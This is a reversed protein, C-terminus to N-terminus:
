LAATAVCIAQIGLGQGFATLGEGSTATVGVSAAPLKAVRAINARMAELQPAIHPRACEISFSLHSLRWGGLHKMAEEVYAESDAIGDELCMRDAAAGLVNVGTLGSIANCLAHLVVDADSNGELPPQGCFRVGGLILAKGAREAAFRHSDQGIAVKVGM